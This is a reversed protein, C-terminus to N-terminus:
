YIINYYWTLICSIVGTVIHWGVEGTLSLVITFIFILINLVFFIYSLLRMEKLKGADAKNEIKYLLKIEGKAGFEAEEKL